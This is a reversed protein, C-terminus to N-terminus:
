GLRRRRVYWGSLALVVVTAAVLGAVAAYQGVDRGAGEAAFATTGGGDGRLGVTGGVPGPECEVSGAVWLGSVTFSANTVTATLTYVGSPM